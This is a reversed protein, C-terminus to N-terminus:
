RRPSHLPFVQAADMRAIPRYRNRSRRNSADDSQLQCKSSPVPLRGLRLAVRFRIWIGLCQGGRSVVLGDGVSLEGVLHGQQLPRSTHAAVCRDQGQIRLNLRGSTTSNLIIWQLPPRQLHSFIPLPCSTLHRIDTTRHTTYKDFRWIVVSWVVLNKTSFSKTM